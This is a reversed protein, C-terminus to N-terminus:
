GSTWSVLGEFSGPVQQRRLVLVNLASIREINVTEPKEVILSSMELHLQPDAGSSLVDIFFLQVDSDSLGLQNTAQTRISEAVAAFEAAEEWDKKAVNKRQQM